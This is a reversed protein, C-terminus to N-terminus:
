EAHISASCAVAPDSGTGILARTYRRGEVQVALQAASPWSNWGM